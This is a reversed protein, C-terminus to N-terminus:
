QGGAFHHPTYNQYHRDTHRETHIYTHGDSSLKRFGKCLSNINACTTYRWFTHTFNTYSPDLDLDLDCSCFIDLIGTGAIYFEIAWLEPAIVSLAMINKHPVLNKASASGTTHDGTKDRSWFRSRMVLHMCEHTTPKLNSAM